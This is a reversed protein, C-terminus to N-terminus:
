DVKLRWVAAALRALEKQRDIVAQKDWNPCDCLRRTIEYASTEYIKKKVAFDANDKPEPKNDRRALLTLNGLRHAYLAHEDSDFDWGDIHKPSKPLIHETTSQASAIAVGDSLGDNIRALVYKANTLSKPFHRNEMRNKYLADPFIDKKKDWEKLAACFKEASSVDGSVIRGALEAVGQEYHSPSFPADFSHVARQIFAWLLESSKYVFKAIHMREGPQAEMHRRLLAFLIPRSVTYSRLDDLYDQIKRRSNTKRADTTLQKLTEEGTRIRELIEFIQITHGQAMSEVLDRVEGERKRQSLAAMKNKLDHAFRDSSLRGYRCQAFCRAYAFFQSENGDMRTRIADIERHMNEELDSKGRVCSFFYVCALQIPELPKSRTNETEFITLPDANHFEIRAVVLQHLLCNFIKRRSESSQNEPQAFFDTIAKWAATMAGNKKVTGGRVLTAYNRKDNTSMSIRPQIDWSDDALTHSHREGVNFIVQMAHNEAASDKPSEGFTRCLYACILSFTVIRQQGDMIDWKDDGLPHFMVTGFFHRAKSDSACRHLDNLLANVHEPKWAYPRQYPPIVFEGRCLVDALPEAKADIELVTKPM